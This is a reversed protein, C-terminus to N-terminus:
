KFMKLIPLDLSRAGRPREVHTLHPTSQQFIGSSSLFSSALPLVLTLFECFSQLPNCSPPQHLRNPCIKQQHCALFSLQIGPFSAPSKSLTLFGKRM